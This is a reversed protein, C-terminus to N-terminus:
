AAKERMRCEPREGTLVFLREGYAPNDLRVGAIFASMEGALKRANVKRAVDATEDDQLLIEWMRHAEAQAQMRDLGRARFEVMATETWSERLLGDDDGLRIRMALVSSRLADSPVTHGMAEISKVQALQKADQWGNLVLVDYAAAEAREKLKILLANREWDVSKIEDDDCGEDEADRLFEARFCEDFRVNADHFVAYATAVATQEVFHPVGPVALHLEWVAM